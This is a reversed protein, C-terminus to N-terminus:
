WWKRTERAGGGEWYSYIYNYNYRFPSPALSVPFFYQIIFFIMFEHSAVTSQAASPFVYFFVDAACTFSSSNDMIKKLHGGKDYQTPCNEFWSINSISIFLISIKLFESWHKSSFVRNQIDVLILRCGQWSSLQHFTREDPIWFM